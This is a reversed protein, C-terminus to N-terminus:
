RSKLDCLGDPKTCARIVDVQDIAWEKAAECDGRPAPHEKVYQIKTKTIVKVEAAKAQQERGRKTEEEAAQKWQGLSEFAIKLKQESVSLAENSVRIERKLERNEIFLKASFFYPALVLLAALLFLVPKLKSIKM